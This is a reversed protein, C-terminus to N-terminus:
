EVPDGPWGEPNADTTFLAAIRWGEPTEACLASVLIRYRAPAARPGVRLLLPVHLYAAGPSAEVAVARAEVPDIRWTEAAHYSMMRAIAPDRGWVSLGNSVWLFRDAALLARVAGLDHANQAAVFAAYLRRAEEAPGALAPPAALLLILCALSRRM